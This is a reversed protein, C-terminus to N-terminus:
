FKYFKKGNVIYMQGRPLADYDRGLNKGDISYFPYRGSRVDDEDAELTDIGTSPSDELVMAFSKAPAAGSPSYLFGRFSHVHGNGNAPTIPLWKNDILNYAHMASATANDVFETTGSFNWDPDTLGPAATGNLGPTVPVVVNHMEPLQHTGGDTVRLIYAKNAELRTGTPVSAFVFFNQGTTRKISKFEYATMGAPLDTPYPLFLTSCGNGSFTRTFNAKAATFQHKIPYDCGRNAKYDPHGDYVKFNACQGDVVFNEQDAPINAANTGNPLYVITYPRMQGFPSYTNARSIIPINITQCNTMDVYKLSICHPFIERDLDHLRSGAAFTFSELNSCQWFTHYRLTTINAPITVNGTLNYCNVFAEQGINSLSGPFVLDGSLRNCEWFAAYHIDSLNAPLYLRGEFGSCGQFARDGIWTASPIRLDGHLGRCQQFADEAIYQCNGPLSLTGNLSYCNYFANSGIYAASPINLNGTMRFCNNFAGNPVEALGGSLFLQGNISQCDHFAAAGIHNVTHLDLNGNLRQCNEFACTGITHVNGQLYLQGDFSWDNQFAFNGIWQVAPPIVINGRLNNCNQFCGEPVYPTSDAYDLWGNFSSCNAFANNGIVSVSNPVYLNGTLHRCGNFASHGIHQLGEHMTLNGGMNECRLFAEDGIVRVAPQVFLWGTLGTCDAYTGNQIYAVHEPTWLNGSLSRCEAFAHHGLTTLAAPYYRGPEGQIGSRQFCQEGITHVTSPIDTGTVNRLEYFLGGQLERVIFLQAATPNTLHTTGYFGSKQPANWDTVIGVFGSLNRNREARNIVWSISVNWPLPGPVGIVWHQWKHNNAYVPNQWINSTEWAVAQMCVLLSVCLLTFTKKM